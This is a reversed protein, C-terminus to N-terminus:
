YNKNLAIIEFKENEGIEESNSFVSSNQKNYTLFSNKITKIVYYNDNIKHPIFTEWPDSYDKDATIKFTNRDAASLYKNYYSKFACNGNDLQIWKFINNSDPIANKSVSITSKDNGDCSLYQNEAVKIMVLTEKVLKAKTDFENNLVCTQYDAYDLLSEFKKSPRVKLFSDWYAAKSMSDYHIANYNYQITQFIQHAIILVIFTITFIKKLISKMMFTQFLMALPIALLAYSEVFARHGYTGGYWWCWWSLIIYINLISFILVPAFFEPRKTKLLFISLVAFLMVPTYLFWGKRYGFLGKIIQPNSFFFGEDGYSYYLFNGTTFKWYIMQPMWIIISIILMLLMLNWKEVLLKIRSGFSKWGTVSYFIFFILIIVNSPRILSILGILCGLIVTYQWSTKEYWKITFFAFLAFLCFLYSHSMPADLTTYYLLNTGFFVSFITLAVIKDDFYLLLLKRLFLFGITVYFLSSIILWFAYPPSFGDTPQNTILAHSYAILYFPLYMFSLGMSMKNTFHNTKSMHPWFKYKLLSLDKNIFSLSLDHYYFTAPLYQYYNIVDWRIVSQPNVWSKHNFDIWLVSIVILFVSTKSLINKGIFRM